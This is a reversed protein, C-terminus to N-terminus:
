ATIKATRLGAYHYGVFTLVVRRLWDPKARLPLGLRCGALHQSLAYDQHRAADERALSLAVHLERAAANDIHQVFETNHTNTPEIVSRTTPHKTTPALPSDM